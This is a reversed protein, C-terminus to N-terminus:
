LYPKPMLVADSPLPDHARRGSKDLIYYYDGYYGDEKRIIALKDFKKYLLEQAGELAKQQLKRQLSRMKENSMLSYLKLKQEDSFRLHEHGTRYDNVRWGVWAIEGFDHEKMNNGKGTMFKVHLVSDVVDPAVWQSFAHLVYFGTVGGEAEIEDLMKTLKEGSPKNEWRQGSYKSPYSNTAGVRLVHDLRSSPSQHSTDDPATRRTSM